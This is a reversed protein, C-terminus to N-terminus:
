SGNLATLIETSYSHGLSGTGCDAIVRPRSAPNAFVKVVLYRAGDGEPQEVVIYTNM